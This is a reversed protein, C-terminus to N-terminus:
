GRRVEQRSVSRLSSIGALIILLRQSHIDILRQNGSAILCTFKARTQNSQTDAMANAGIINHNSAEITNGCMSANNNEGTLCGNTCLCRVRQHMFVDLIKIESKEPITNICWSHSDVIVVPYLFLREVVFPIRKGCSSILSILVYTSLSLDIFRFALKEAHTISAQSFFILDSFRFFLLQISNYYNCHNNEEKLSPLYGMMPTTKVMSGEEKGGWNVIILNIPINSKKNKAYSNGYCNNDTKKNKM